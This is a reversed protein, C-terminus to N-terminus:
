CLDKVLPVLHSLVSVLALSKAKRMAAVGKLSGKNSQSSQRAALEGQLALMASQPGTYDNKSRKSSSAVPVEPM